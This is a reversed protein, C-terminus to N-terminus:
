GKRYFYPGCFGHTQVYTWTLSLDVVYLDHEEIFTKQVYVTPVLLGIHRIM